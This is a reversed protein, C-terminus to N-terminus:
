LLKQPISLYIIERNGVEVRWENEREGGGGYERGGSGM